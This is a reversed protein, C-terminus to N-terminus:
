DKIKIKVDPGVVSGLRAFRPPLPSPPLACFAQLLFSRSCHPYTQRGLEARATPPPPPPSSAGASAALTAPIRFLDRKTNAAADSFFAGAGHFHRRAAVPCGRRRTAAYQVIIAGVNEGALSFGRPRRSTGRPSVRNQGRYQKRRARFELRAEFAIGSGGRPAIALVGRATDHLDQNQSM